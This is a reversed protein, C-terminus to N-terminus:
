SSTEKLTFGQVAPKFRAQFREDVEYTVVGSHMLDFVWKRNIPLEPPDDSLARRVFEIRAPDWRDQVLTSLNHSGAQLVFEFADNEEPISACLAQTVHPQGGAATLIRGEFDRAMYELTRIEVLRRIEARQLNSLDTVRLGRHLNVPEGASPTRFAKDAPNLALVLDLERLSPYNEAGYQLSILVWELARLLWLDANDEQGWDERYLHSVNDLPAPHVELFLSQAVFKFQGM